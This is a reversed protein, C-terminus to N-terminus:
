VMYYLVTVSYLLSLSLDKWDNEVAEIRRITVQRVLCDGLLFLRQVLGVGTASFDDTGQWATATLELSHVELEEIPVVIM